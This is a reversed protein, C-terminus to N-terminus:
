WPMREYDYVPDKMGPMHDEQGTQAVILERDNLFARSALMQEKTRFLTRHEVEYPIGLTHHRVLPYTGASSWLWVREGGKVASYWWHLKEVRLGPHARYIHPISVRTGAQQEHWVGPSSDHVSREPHVPTFYTVEVVDAHNRILNELSSRAKERDTKIIHDADVTVVWDSNVVAMALLYCRKEVQGAWTRDAQIVYCELGMEDATQRIAAAQDPDSRAKADPYRHYAGDLAILRDAVNAIGRVCDVLDEPRENYWPLAATVIV